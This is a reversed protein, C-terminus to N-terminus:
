GMFNAIFHLFGYAGLSSITTAFVAILLYPNKRSRSLYFIAICLSLIFFISWFSNLTISTEFGTLFSAIYFVNILLLLLLSFRRM